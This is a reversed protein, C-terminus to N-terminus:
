RAEHEVYASPYLNIPLDNPPGDRLEGNADEIIWRLKELTARDLPPDATITCRVADDGGLGNLHLRLQRDELDRHALIGPPRSEMIAAGAARTIRLADRRFAVTMIPETPFTRFSNGDVTYTVTAPWVQEAITAAMDRALGLYRGSAAALRGGADASAAVLDNLHRTSAREGLRKIVREAPDKWGHRTEFALAVRHLVEQESWADELAWERERMRQTAPRVVLTVVAPGLVTITAQSGIMRMLERSTGRFAPALALVNLTTLARLTRQDVVLAHRALAGGAWGSLIAHEKHRGCATVAAAATLLGTVARRVVPDQQAPPRYVLRGTREGAEYMVAVLTNLVKWWRQHPGILAERSASMAAVMVGCLRISWVLPKDVALFMEDTITDQRVDQEARTPLELRVRFGGDGAHTSVDGDVNHAHSRLVSLGRGSEALGSGPLGPADDSVEVHVRDETGGLSVRVRTAGTAYRQANSVTGPIFAAILLLSGYELSADALESEIVCDLELSTLERAAEVRRRVLDGLSAPRERLTEVIAAREALRGLAREIDALAEDRGDMGDEACIDARADLLASRLPAMLAHIDDRFADLGGLDRETREFTEQVGRSLATLALVAQATAASAVFALPIVCYTVIMKGDQAPEKWGNFVATQTVWIAAAGVAYTLGRREGAVTASVGVGAIALQWLPNKRGGLAPSLALPVFGLALSFTPREHILRATRDPRRFGVCASAITGAGAAFGAIRQPRSLSRDAISIVAGAAACIGIAAATMRYLGAIDKEGPSAAAVTAPDTSSM